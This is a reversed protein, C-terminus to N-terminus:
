RSCGSLSPFFPIGTMPFFPVTDNPKVFGHTLLSGFLVTRARRTLRSRVGVPKPSRCEATLSGVCSSCSASSLCRFLKGSWTGEVLIPSTAKREPPPREIWQAVLAIACKTGKVVYAQAPGHEAHDENIDSRLGDSCSSCGGWGDQIVSPPSDPSQIPNEGAVDLVFPFTRIGRQVHRMNPRLGGQRAMSAKADRKRYAQEAVGM